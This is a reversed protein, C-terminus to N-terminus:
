SWLIVGNTTKDIILLVGGVQGEKSMGMVILRLFSNVGYVSLVPAVMGFLKFSYSAMISRARHSSFPVMLPVKTSYTVAAAKAASSKISPRMLTSSSLLLLTATTLLSGVPSRNNSSAKVMIAADFRWLFKFSQTM